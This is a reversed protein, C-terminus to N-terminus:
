LVHRHVAKARQREDLLLAANVTLPLHGAWAIDERATGIDKLLHDDLEALRRVAKRALWNRFLNELLGSGPLSGSLHAQHHAYDRMIDYRRVRLFGIKGAIELGQPSGSLTGTQDSHCKEM